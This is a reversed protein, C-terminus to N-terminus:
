VLGANHKVILFVKILCSFMSKIAMDSNAKKIIRVNKDNLTRRAFKDSNCIRTLIIGTLITRGLHVGHEYRTLTPSINVCTFYGSEDM